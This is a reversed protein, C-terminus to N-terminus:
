VEILLSASALPTRFEHVLVGITVLAARMRERRLNLSSWSMMMATVIAIAFIVMASRGPLAAVRFAPALLGVKEAGAVLAVALGLLGLALRWDTVYFLIYIMAVCSAMWVPDYANMRYLALFSLPLGVLAM